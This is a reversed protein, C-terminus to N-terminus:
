RNRCFQVILDFESKIEEIAESFANWNESSAEVELDQLLSTLRPAAINSSTSKANHAANRLDMPQQNQIASELPPLMHAFSDLFLFLWESLTDEETTGLIEALLNLDIPSQAKM